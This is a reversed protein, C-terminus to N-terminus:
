YSRTICLRATFELISNLMIYPILYGYNLLNEASGTLTISIAALIINVVAHYQIMIETSIRTGIICIIVNVIADAFASILQLTM